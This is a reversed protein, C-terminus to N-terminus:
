TAPGWWRWRRSMPPTSVKPRGVLPGVRVEGRRRPEVTYTWRSRNGGVLELEVRKPGQDVAPHLTDRLRLSHRQSESAKMAVDVEVEGFSFSEAGSEAPAARRLLAEVRAMVELVSFPKTVYDDAGLKLGRVKDAEDGRATLVLVPTRAGSEHNVGSRTFSGSGAYSQFFGGVMNSLGQGIMEQSSDFREHRRIAFARGISVAELLGVLAIAAAGEGILLGDARRDLPRATGSRSLAHLRAFGHFLYSSDARNVSAAVMLDADGRALRQCALQVAYLGSACAADLALAGVPGAAMM